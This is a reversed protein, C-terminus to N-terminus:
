AGGKRKKVNIVIGIKIDQLEQFEWKRSSFYKLM